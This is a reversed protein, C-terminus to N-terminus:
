AFIWAIDGIKKKKKKKKFICRINKSCFSIYWPYKKSCSLMKQPYVDRIIVCEVHNMVDNCCGIWKWISSFEHKDTNSFIFSMMDSM